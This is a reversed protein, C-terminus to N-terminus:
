WLWVLWFLLCLVWLWWMWCVFVVVVCVVGCCGVVCSWGRGWFRVVFWWFWGVCGIFMVCFIMLWCVSCCNMSIRILMSVRMMMSVRMVFVVVWM